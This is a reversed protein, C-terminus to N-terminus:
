HLVRPRGAGQVLRKPLDISAEGPLPGLDRALTTRPKAASHASRARSRAPVPAVSLIPFRRGRSVQHKTQWHEDLDPGPAGTESGPGSSNAWTQGLRSENEGIEVSVSPGLHPGIQAVHQFNWGPEPWGHGQRWCGGGCEAAKAATLGAVGRRPSLGESTGGCVGVVLTWAPWTHKIDTLNNPCASPRRAPRALARAADAARMPRTKPEPQSSPAVTNTASSGEALTTAGSSRHASTAVSGRQAWRRQRARHRAVEAATPSIEDSTPGIETHEPMAGM